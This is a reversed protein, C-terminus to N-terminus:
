CGCTNDATLKGTAIAYGIQRSAGLTPNGSLTPPGFLVSPASISIEGKFPDNTACRGGGSTHTLYTQFQVGAGQEPLLPGADVVMVSGVYTPTVTTIKPPHGPRTILLSVTGCVTSTLAPSTNGSLQIRLQVAYVTAQTRNVWGAGVTVRCGSYPVVQISAPNPNQSRWQNLLTGYTTAAATLRSQLSELDALLDRHAVGVAQYYSGPCKPGCISSLVVPSTPFLSPDPPNGGTSTVGLTWSICGDTKIQFDGHKQPPIQNISKVTPTGSTCSSPLQGLSDFAITGVQGSVSINSFVGPRIFVTGTLRQGNVTISSVAAPAASYTVPDLRLIGSWDAFSGFVSPLVRIIRLFVGGTKYTLVQRGAGWMEGVFQGASVSVTRSADEFVASVLAPNDTNNGILSVLSVEGDFSSPWVMQIDLVSQVVKATTGTLDTLLSSTTPFLADYPYGLSTDSPNFTGDYPIVGGGTTVLVDFPAFPYLTGGSPPQDPGIRALPYDPSAPFM